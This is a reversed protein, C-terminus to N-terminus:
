TPKLLLEVGWSTFGSRSILIPIKMKVTKIIMESTLRGTTYFIKDNTKIKNLFMYGTIKDVANHRGVDEMYIIPRDNKIIVCGHVAGAELYLSPTLNIKKSIEYISKHSIKLRSKIKTKQIEEYIDGFITGQACGSTIIKKRLTKEYNTQRNTRVVIVSIDNDYEISKIKDTSKLMNQNLLYGVSLYKPHDGISMLTVIEQNNLFITLASEQVVKTNIQNNDQDIGKVSKTLANNNINPSILYKNKKMKM